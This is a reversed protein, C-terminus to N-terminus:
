TALLSYIESDIFKGNFYYNERFYAERIFGNHELLKKSALNGPNINAEISHLKMDTFGYKIVAAAAERMIGKGQYAPHLVYGIEARHNQKDLRWFCVQGIMEAPAESLCIAWTIGTNDSTNGTILKIFELAEEHTPAPERDIYELVGADSRLFFVMEVDAPTTPRLLLRDTTIVPFPTFNFELM